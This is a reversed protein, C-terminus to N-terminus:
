NDMPFSHMLCQSTVWQTSIIKLYKFLWSCFRQQKSNSANPGTDQLQQKLYCRPTM